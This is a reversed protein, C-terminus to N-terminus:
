DLLNELFPLESNTICYEYLRADLDSKVRDILELDKEPRLMRYKANISRIVDSRKRKQMDGSKSAVGLVRNIEETATRSNKLTINDVLLKLLAKEIEEFVEKGTTSETSFLSIHCGGKSIENELAQIRDTEKIRLTELGSFYGKTGM